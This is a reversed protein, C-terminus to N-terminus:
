VVTLKVFKLGDWAYFSITTGVILAVKPHKAPDVTSLDSTPWVSRVESVVYPVGGRHQNRTGEGYAIDEEALLNKVVNM